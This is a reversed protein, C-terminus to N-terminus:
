VSNPFQTETADQPAIKPVSRQDVFRKLALLSHVYGLTGSEDKPGIGHFAIGSSINRILKDPLTFITPNEFSTTSM